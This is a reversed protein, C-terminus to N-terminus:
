IKLGPTAPGIRLAKTPCTDVCAGCLMCDGSAVKDASGAVADDLIAPDCICVHKCHDCNICADHDIKVSLLGVTGLVQYMGGLPCISRCWVRHGFFLEVVVIAVLTWVGLTSGFLVARNLAGIPNIAEYLPICTIASLALIAVAAIPKVFRPIPMEYVRLGVKARLWDVIELVLNVPCIWGCFARGRVLAFVILIPLAWLMASAVQKSAAISQLAAFPDLLNIGFLQSSSLSGWFVLDSPVVEEAIETGTGFYMGFLGWGLAVLPAAYACLMILQVVHRAWTFGHSRRAPRDPTLGPEVAHVESAEAAAATAQAAETIESNPNTKNVSM